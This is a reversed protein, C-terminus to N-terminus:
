ARERRLLKYLTHVDVDFWEAVAKPPHGADVLVLMDRKDQATYATRRPNEFLSDPLGGIAHVVKSVTEVNADLREALEGIRTEEEHLCASEIDYLIHEDADQFVVDVIDRMPFGMVRELDAVQVGQALVDIVYEGSRRQAAEYVMQHGMEAVAEDVLPNEDLWEHGYMEVMDRAVAALREISPTVAPIHDPIVVDQLATDDDLAQYEEDSLAELESTTMKKM